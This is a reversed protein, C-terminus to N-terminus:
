RELLPLIKFIPLSKAFNRRHDFNLVAKKPSMSYIYPLYLLLLDHDYCYCVNQTQQLRNVRM